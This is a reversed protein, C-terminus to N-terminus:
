ASASSLRSNSCSPTAASSSRLFSRISRMASPSRTPSSSPCHRRSKSSRQWQAGNSWGAATRWRDWSRASVTLVGRARDGRPFAPRREFFDRRIRNTPLVSPRAVRQSSAPTAKARCAEGRTRGARALLRVARTPTSRSTQNKKQSSPSQRSRARGRWSPQSSARGTRTAGSSPHSRSSLTGARAVRRCWRGPHGPRSWRARCCSRRRRCCRCRPIRTTPTTRRRRRLRSSLPYPRAGPRAGPTHTTRGAERPGRPGGCWARGPLCRSRCRVGPRPCSPRQAPRRPPRPSRSSGRGQRSPAPGRARCRSTASRGM